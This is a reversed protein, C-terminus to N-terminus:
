RSGPDEAPSLTFFVTAGKEVAGEVWATGGHRRVIRHVTALGIGTGPFEDADHLRQFPRMLKDVYAMDFGAGDDAVFFAPGRPTTARGVRIRATPHRSTFKWANGLLNQLLVRLLNRDGIAQLGPEVELEVARQPAEARLEAFVGAALAGLEIPEPAMEVRTVRSLALLDDILRGMRVTAARVRALHDRA